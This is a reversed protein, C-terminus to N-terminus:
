SRPSKWDVLLDPVSTASAAAEVATAWAIIFSGVKECATSVDGTLSGRTAPSSGRSTTPTSVTPRAALQVRGHRDERRRDRCLRRRSPRESGPRQRSDPACRRGSRLEAYTNGPDLERPLARGRGQATGHHGTGSRHATLKASLERERKGSLQDDFPVRGPGVRAAPREIGNPLVRLDRSRDSTRLVRCQARDRRDPRCRPEALQRRLVRVASPTSHLPRTTGTDARDM